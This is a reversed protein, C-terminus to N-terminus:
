GTGAATKGDPQWQQAYANGLYGALRDVLQSRMNAKQLEVVVKSGNALMCHVDFIISRTIVSKVEVNNISTVRHETDDNLVANLFHSLTEPKTFARKFPTDLRLSALKGGDFSQPRRRSDVPVCCLM